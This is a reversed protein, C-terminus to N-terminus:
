AYAGARYESVIEGNIIGRAIACLEPLWGRDEAIQIPRCGKNRAIAKIDRHNRYRDEYYLMNWCDHEPQELKCALNRMEQNLRARWDIEKVEPLAGAKLLKVGIQAQESKIGAIQDMMSILSVTVTETMLRVANAMEIVIQENSITGAVSYSGTKRISPLVVAFAWERYPAAKPSDSGLILYNLGAEDLLLHRRMRGDAALVETQSLHLKPIRRASESVNSLGLCKCADLAVWWEKGKEDVVIRQPAKEFYVTLEQTM